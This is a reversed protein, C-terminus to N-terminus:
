RKLAKFKCTQPEFMFTYLVHTSNLTMVRKWATEIDHASDVDLGTFRGTVTDPMDKVQEPLADERELEVPVLTPKLTNNLYISIEQAVAM